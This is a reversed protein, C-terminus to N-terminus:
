SAGELIRTVADLVSLDDLLPETARLVRWGMATAANYKECDGTVGKGRVHRGHSWIGGDIEVALLAAPWAFDFKWRRTPHFRYEREPQPLGAARVQQAFVDELESM